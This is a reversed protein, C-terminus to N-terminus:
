KNDKEAETRVIYRIQATVGDGLNNLESSYVSVRYLPANHNVGHIAINVYNDDDGNNNEVVTIVVRWSEPLMDLLENM